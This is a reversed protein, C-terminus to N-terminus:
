GEEKERSTEDDSETTPNVKRLHRQLLFRELDAPFDHEFVAGPKHGAVPVVSVNEYTPLEPAEDSQETHTSEDSM